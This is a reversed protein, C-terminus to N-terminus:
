LAANKVCIARVRTKKRGTNEPASTCTHEPDCNTGKPCTKMCRKKEDKYAFCISGAACEMTSACIEDLVKDGRQNTSGGLLKVAAGSGLILLILGGVVIKVLGFGADKEAIREPMRPPAPQEPGTDAQKPTKAGQSGLSRSAIRKGSSGHKRKAM